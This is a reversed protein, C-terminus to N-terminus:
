LKSSAPMLWRACLCRPGAPSLHAALAPFFTAWCFGRWWEAPNIPWPLVASYELPLVGPRINKCRCRFTVEVGRHSPVECKALNRGYVSNYPHLSFHTHLSSYIIVFPTEFAFEYHYTEATPCLIFHKLSCHLKYSIMLFYFISVWFIVYGVRCWGPNLNM